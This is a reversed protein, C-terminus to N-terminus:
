FLGGKRHDIGKLGLRYVMGDIRSVTREGLGGVLKELPLNSTFITAKDETARHDIIEYVETKFAETTDRIGIDDLVLMEVSKMRDKMNYYSDSVQKQKDISGRFQANYKNQFDSVKVFIAPNEQIERQGTLHQRVRHIMYENLITIATTTKGTGTGFPNSENPISFLFLGVNKDKVYQDLDGIYKKVVDYVKSNEDQIPLNEVLCEKYKSPVGTTNWFGAEGSKGHLMVYPYCGVGCRATDKNKCTRNFKCQGSFM